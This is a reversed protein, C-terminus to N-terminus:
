DGELWCFILRSVKRDEHLDYWGLVVKNGARGIMEPNIIFEKYLDPSPNEADKQKVGEWVSDSRAEQAAKREQRKSVAEDDTM